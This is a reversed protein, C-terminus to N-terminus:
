TKNQTQTKPNKQCKVVILFITTEVEKDGEKQSRSFTLCEETCSVWWLYCVFYWLSGNSGNQFLTTTKLCPNSNFTCMAM